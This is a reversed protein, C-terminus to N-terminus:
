KAPISGTNTNRRRASEGREDPYELTATRLGDNRWTCRRSVVVRIWRGRLLVDRWAATDEDEEDDLGAASRRCTSLAPGGGTGLTISNTRKPNGVNPMQNNCGIKDNISVLTMPIVPDDIKSNAASPGPIAHISEVAYMHWNTPIAVVFRYAVAMLSFSRGFCRFTKLWAVMMAAAMPASSNANCYAKAGAMIRIRAPVATSDIGYAMVYELIRDNPANNATRVM